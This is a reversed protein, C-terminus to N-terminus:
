LNYSGGGPHNMLPQNPMMGTPINQHPNYFNGWDSHSQTPPKGLHSVSRRQTHIWLIFTSKDHWAHQNSDCQPPPTYSPVQSSDQGGLQNSWGSAVPNSGPTLILFAEWLLLRKLSRLAVLYSHLILLIQAGLELALMLALLQSPTQFNRLLIRCVMPFLVLPWLSPSFM